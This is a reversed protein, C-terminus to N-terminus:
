KHALGKHDLCHSFGNNGPGFEEGCSSCSVAAFRFPKEPLGQSKLWAARRAALTHGAYRAQARLDTLEMRVPHYTPLTSFNKM